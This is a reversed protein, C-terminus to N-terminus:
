RSTRHLHAVRGAWAMQRAVGRLLSLERASPRARALLRRLEGLVHEPDNGHLFDVERLAERWHALAAEMAVADARAPPSPPHSADAAGALFAEYAVILVAQALNLSPQEPATPIRLRAHCLALERESLGSAEPGFVIAVREAPRAALAAAFARPTLTDPAIRGSAGVVWHAGALASTLDACVSAGDLVDWAGYAAAREDPQAPDVRPAVLRLDSCGMNKLARCAAAVNGGRTPRVLVFSLRSAM